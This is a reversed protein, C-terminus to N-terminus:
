SYEYIIVAGDGGSGGSYASNPSSSSIAGGGGSGLSGSSGGASAGAAGNGGGSLLSAGGDGGINNSQSILQMAGGRQGDSNVINGGSGAGGAGSANQIFTGTEYQSSATGVAGDGGTSIVLSGFYSTGGNSGSSTNSGAAGGAGVIIAVGGRFGSTIYSESYGGAGGGAGGAMYGSSTARAGAGGGGAGCVKVLIATTGTTPTYTYTGPTTYTKISILRGAERGSLTINTGDGHILHQGNYLSVGTGSTTKVLVAFNGTCNNEIVWDRKWPPLFLYVNSTLVGSLIIRDKAAKLNSLTVSISSLTVTSYGYHDSPIWGTDSADTAEPSTANTENQNVWFGSGDSAPVVAGKPYGGISSAFDANFPYGCGADNWQFKLSFDHLIGNMDKGAPAVGGSSIATMTLPPFGSEYTATGAALTATSSSEAIDNYNGGSAFVTGTRDPISSSNM